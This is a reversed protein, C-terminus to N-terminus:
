QQIVRPNLDMLDTIVDTLNVNDFSQGASEPAKTATDLCKESFLFATIGISKPANYDHAVDDGVHGTEDATMGSISLAHQFISPNPKELKTNVSTILFDFYHDLKYVALTKELREDFNSVVGLKIGANKLTSLIQHSNPIVEWELGDKFRNWLVDSVKKLQDQNGQYGANVFVRSVFKHWWDKTTMGQDIGYNPHDHKQQQWTSGYVKNLATPTMKIGFLKGVAAYQHGPSEKLRLITNTVDFTLLKLRAAM